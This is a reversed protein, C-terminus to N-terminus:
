PATLDNIIGDAETEDAAEYWRTKQIGCGKLQGGSTVATGQVVALQGKGGCPGTSEDPVGDGDLDVPEQEGIIIQPQSALGRTTGDQYREDVTGDNDVDVASGDSISVTYLRSRGAIPACDSTNVDRQPVYTTFYLRGQLITASAIVKEGISRDLSLYWGKKNSFDVSSSSTVDALDGHTITSSPVTGAYASADDLVYIRDQTTAQSAEEGELPHPRYGSGIALQLVTTGNREGLAITPAAFFRRHNEYSDALGGAVGLQALTHVGSVLDSPGTNGQNDLDIRFVQGGLDAVYLYDVLGDFDLDVVSVDGPISYQMGPVSTYHGNGASIADGSGAWILAGNYANVIYVANGEADNGGSVAGWNDHDAPSYGGAFILVPVPTGNLKIKGFTPRSWTQGLKEFPSNNGDIVWMLEPSTKDSADIAYYRDGGRRQGGYLFVRVNDSSDVFRWTTWTSDLGYTSRNFPSTLTDQAIREATKALEERPMFVFTEEGTDADIAHLAGDNTSVFVVNDQIYSNGSATIDYTVLRPESHLPDGFGRMVLKFANVLDESSASASLGFDARDLNPDPGGGSAQVPYLTSGTVPSTQDVDTGPTPLTEPSLFLPRAFSDGDIEGAAGGLNARNGDEVDSWFSKSSEKFFGTEPDVAPSGTADVLVPGTSRFELKYRKMNGKWRNVFEPKFVSYYLQDLHMFRNLQNVAVGPAALSANELTVKNVIDSFAQEVDAISSAAKHVGGSLEAMKRFGAVDSSDEDMGLTVVHTLVARRDETESPNAAWYSYHAMCAYPDSLATLGDLDKNGGGWPSDAPMAAPNGCTTDTLVGGTASAVVDTPDDVPTKAALMVVHRRECQAAVPGAYQGYKSAFIEDAFQQQQADLAGESGDYYDDGSIVPGGRMYSASDLYSYGLDAKGGGKASALLNVQEQLAERNTPAFDGPHTSYVDMTIYVGELNGEDMSGLRVAYDAPASSKLVFGMAANLYWDAHNMIENALATIDVSELSKATTAAHSVTASPTGLTLGSIEGGSNFPGTNGPVPHIELSGGSGAVELITYHMQVNSIEADSGFPVEPFRVGIIYPQDQSVTTLKGADGAVLFGDGTLETTNSNEVVDNTVSVMDLRVDGSCSKADTGGSVSTPRNIASPDWEVVLKPGVRVETTANAEADSTYFGFTQDSAGIALALSEKGCWYVEKVADQVLATVPVRVVERGEQTLTQVTVRSKTTAGDDSCLFLNAAASFDDPSACIGHSSQAYNGVLTPSTVPPFLDSTADFAGPADVDLRYTDIDAGAPLSSSPVHLEIYANSVSAYRPVAVQDFVFAARDHSFGNLTIVEQNLSLNDQGQIDPCPFQNPNNTCNTYGTSVLGLGSEFADANVSGPVSVSRAVGAQLLPKVPYAVYSGTPQGGSYYRGLGLRTRGSTRDIVRNLAAGLEEINTGQNGAGATDIMFMISTTANDPTGQLFVETDDAHVPGGLFLALWLAPWLLNLKKISATMLSGEEPKKKDTNM